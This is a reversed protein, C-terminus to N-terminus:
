EATCKRSRFYSIGRPGAVAFGQGDTAAALRLTVNDGMEIRNSVKGNKVDLVYVSGTGVISIVASDGLLLPGDNVRGSLRRKWKVSGSRSLKYVFNDYSAALYESGQLSASSIQAGNRFRWLRHGDSSVAILNGREDGVVLRGNLDLLIATPLYLSKWDLHVRGESGSVNLVENKNTAVELGSEQFFPAATVRSKLDTTWVLTGGAQTLASVSGGSGVAIVNGINSGIWVFPSSPIEVSWDTVGTERSIARLTARVAPNSPDPQSNTVIFISDGLVLLNSVVEGGLESSWAKSGAELDVGHLSNEDDLFFVTSADAAIGVNLNPNVEYEWCKAFITPGASVPKSSGAAVSTLILLSFLATSFTRM